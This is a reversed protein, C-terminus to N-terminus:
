STMVYYVSLRNRLEEEDKAVTFGFIGSQTYEFVVGGISDAKALAAHRRSARASHSHLGISTFDFVGPMYNDGHSVAMPDFSGDDELKM